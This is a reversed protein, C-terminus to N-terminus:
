GNSLHKHKWLFESHTQFATSEVPHHPLIDKLSTCLSGAQLLSIVQFKPCFPISRGETLQESHWGPATLDKSSLQLASCSASIERDWIATFKEGKGMLILFFTTAALTKQLWFHPFFEEGTQSDDHTLFQQLDQHTSCIFSPNRTHVVIHAHEQAVQPDMLRKGYIMIHSRPQHHSNNAGETPDRATGPTDPAHLTWPWGSIEFSPQRLPASAIQLETFRQNRRAGDNGTSGEYNINLNKIFPSWQLINNM